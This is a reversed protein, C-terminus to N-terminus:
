PAHIDRSFTDGLVHIKGPKLNIPFIGFNGLTELWRAERTSLKPKMLFSTVVQNETFINFNSGELYRKLRLLFHILGYLERLLSLKNSFFVIM